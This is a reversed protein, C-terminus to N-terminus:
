AKREWDPGTMCLAEQYDALQMPENPEIEGHRDPKSRSSRYALNPGLRVIELAFVPLRGFGGLTEPRLHPPLHVPDDPAVSVGRGPHVINEGDPKVDVGVRAGLMYDGTGCTPREDASTCM